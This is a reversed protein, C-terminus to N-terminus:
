KGSFKLAKNLTKLDLQSFLVPFIDNNRFTLVGVAVAKKDVTRTISAGDPKRTSDHGCFEQLNKFIFDHDVLVYQVRGNIDKKELTYTRTVFSTGEDEVVHCYLKISSDKNQQGYVTDVTFPRHTVLGSNFKRFTGLMAPDLPIIALGSTFCVNDRPNWVSALNTLPKKDTSDLKKFCLSFGQLNDHDSPQIVKESTVLQINRELGPRELLNKVLSGSGVTQTGHGGSLQKIIRCNALKCKEKERKIQLKTENGKLMKERINLDSMSGKWRSAVHIVTVGAVSSFFVTTLLRNWDLPDIAKHPLFSQTVLGFFM